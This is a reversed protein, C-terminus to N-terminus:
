TSLRVGPGSSSASLSWISLPRRSLWRRRVVFEEHFYGIHAIPGGFSSVGLKFFVRLVELSSGRHPDDGAVKNEIEPTVRVAQDAAKAM